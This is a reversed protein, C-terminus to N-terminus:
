QSRRMLEEVFAEPSVGPPLVIVSGGSQDSSRSGQNASGRDSRNQGQQASGRDGRQQPREEGRLRDREQRQMNQMRQMVQQRGDSIGSLYGQRYGREYIQQAFGDLDLMMTRDMSGQSQDQGSQGSQQGDTSTSGSSQASGDTGANSGGGQVLYTGDTAPADGADMLGELSSGGDGAQLDIEGEPPEIDGPTNGEPSAPTDLPEMQYSGDTAPADDTMLEMLTAADGGSQNMQTETSSESGGGETSSQAFVPPGSLSLLVATATTSLVKTTIPM